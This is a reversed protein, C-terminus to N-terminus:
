TLLWGSWAQDPKKIKVISDSQYTLTGAPLALMLQHEAILQLLTETNNHECRAHHAPNTWIPDHKNFEDAWITCNAGQLINWLGCEYPM